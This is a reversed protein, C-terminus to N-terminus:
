GTGPLVFCFVPIWAPCCSPPAGVGPTPQPIHIEVPVRGGQEGEQTIRPCPISPHDWQSKSTQEPPCVGPMICLLHWRDELFLLSHLLLGFLSIPESWLSSLLRSPFLPLSSTRFYPYPKLPHSVFTHLTEEEYKGKPFFSILASSFLVQQPGTHSSQPHLPFVALSLLSSCGMRPPPTGGLDQLISAQQRSRRCASCNM